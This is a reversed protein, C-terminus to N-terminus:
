LTADSTEVKAIIDKFLNIDIDTSTIGFTLLFMTNNENAWYSYLNKGRYVPNEFFNTYYKIRDKESKSFFIYFIEYKLLNIFNIGETTDDDVREFKSIQNSIGAHKVTSLNYLSLSNLINTWKELIPKNDQIFKEYQSNEIINKYCLIAELAMKELTEINLLFHSNLYDSLLKMVEEESDDFDLDCPIDLNSLYVLLKSGKLKSNKYDIVFKINKDVFYTKLHDMSIPAITKIINM